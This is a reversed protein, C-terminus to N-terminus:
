PGTCRRPSSCRRSRESTRSGSASARWLLEEVAISRRGAVLGQDDRRLRQRHGPHRHSRGPAARDPADDLREPMGLAEAAERQGRPVAQIGARFIETMYAGYNFSSRSSAPRSPPLIIGSGAAACPLRLLDPRAAAHGPGAVRLAFGIANLYPNRSLRGLAGISAGPPDRVCDVGGLRPDHPGSRRRHITGVRRHVRRRHERHDLPGRPHGSLAAWTVAVKM